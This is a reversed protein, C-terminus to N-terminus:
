VPHEIISTAPGGTCYTHCIRWTTRGRHSMWGTWQRTESQQWWCTGWSDTGWSHIVPSLISFSSWLFARLTYCNSVLIQYGLYVNPVGHWWFLSHHSIQIWHTFHKGSYCATVVDPLQCFQFIKLQNDFKLNPAPPWWSFFFASQIRPKFMILSLIKRMMQNQYKRRTKMPSKLSTKLIPVITDQFNLDITISILKSILLKLKLYKSIFHFIRLYKLFSSFSRWM